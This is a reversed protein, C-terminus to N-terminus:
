VGPQLQRQVQETLRWDYGFKALMADLRVSGECAVAVRRALHGYRMMTIRGVRRYDLSLDLLGEDPGISHDRMYGGGILLRWLPWRMGDGDMIERAGLTFERRLQPESLRALEADRVEAAMTATGGRASIARERTWYTGTNNTAAGTETTVGANDYLATVSTALDSIDRALVNSGPVKDRRWVQWEVSASTSAAEMYAVPLQPEGDADFPAPQLWFFLPNGSGDGALLMEEITRGVHLGQVPFTFGNASVTTACINSQDSNVIAAHDTLATKIVDDTNVAGPNTAEYTDFLRWWPGAAQIILLPGRLTCGTITGDLVPGDCFHDHVILRQGLWDEYAAYGTPGYRHVVVEFRQVGGPLSWQVAVDAVPGVKDVYAPSAYDDWVDAYLTM